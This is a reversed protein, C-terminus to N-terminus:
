RPLIGRLLGRTAEEFPKLEEKEFAKKFKESEFVRKELQDRAVAKVDPAILPEAFTGGVLIPIRIDTKKASGTSYAAQSQVRFDLTERVLDASGSASLALLPSTLSASDTRAVGDAVTFPARLESFATRAGSGRTWTFDLVKEASRMLAALDIGKVAGKELALDVRGSLSQKIEAPRDGSFALKASARGTGDLIDKRTFAQV